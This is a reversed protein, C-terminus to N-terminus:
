FRSTGLYQVTSVRESSGHEEQDQNYVKAGGYAHLTFSLLFLLLFALTLSNEYLKLVIGGKRVPWPAKKKHEADDVIVDVRDIGGDPDKSESSGKQYLWVTLIVYAGMQLFESEWNEFVAEIFHGEGIYETASVEPQGHEKQDENYEHWGTLYQGVLSLFFVSFM